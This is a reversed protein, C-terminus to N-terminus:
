NKKELLYHSWKESGDSDGNPLGQKMVKFVKLIEDFSLYQTAL